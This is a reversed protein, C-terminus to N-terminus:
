EIGKIISKSEIIENKHQSCQIISGEDIICGKLKSKTIQCNKFIICDKLYSDKIITGKDIFVKGEIQNKGIFDVGYFNFGGRERSVKKHATIYGEFSGIDFWAKNTIFANVTTKKILYEVFSGPNDQHIKVFEFLLSFFKFPIVMCMTNVLTSDPKEPKERFKIVRDGRVSLVGFKKADELSKLNYAAIIPQGQYHDLFETILFQFYNDGGIVLLDEQINKEKIANVIGGLAGFKKAEENSEEYIMEVKHGCNKKWKEFDPKFKQNTAVYAQIDAPIKEIIHTIMPKGNILLLPKAKEKTLPWLRTAYGGALILAKM